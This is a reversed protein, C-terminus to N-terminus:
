YRKAYYTDQPETKHNNNLVYADKKRSYIPFVDTFPAFASMFDNGYELVALLMVGYM